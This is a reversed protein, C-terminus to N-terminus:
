HDTASTNQCKVPRTACVANTTTACSTVIDPRDDIVM